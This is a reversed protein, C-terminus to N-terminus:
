LRFVISALFDNLSHTVIASWLSQTYHFILALVCGFIFIFAVTELRLLDFAIWGPLHIAVFLLSTLLNAIWFNSREQIQQLLFGRYPIEEVFGIFISTSLVSNWTISEMTPHPMGYRLASLLANIVSLAVGILIGRKWHQRLKLYTIPDVQDVYRLYLFVPLVWVLLRVGINVLAYRLTTDGLQQMWPYVTYLWVAWSGHFLAISALLPALPKRTREAHIM